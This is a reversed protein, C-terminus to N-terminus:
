CPKKIGNQRYCLRLSNVAINNEARRKLHNKAVYRVHAASRNCKYSCYAKNSKFLFAVGCNGCRKILKSKELRQSISDNLFSIFSEFPNEHSQLKILGNLRRLDKKKFTGKVLWDNVARSLLNIRKWYDDYGVLRVPEYKDIMEWAVKRFFHHFAGDYARDPQPKELRRDSLSALVLVVNEVSTLDYDGPGNRHASSLGCFLGALFFPRGEDKTKEIYEKNIAVIPDRLLPPQASREPYALRFEDQTCPVRCKKWFDKKGAYIKVFFLVHEQGQPYQQKDVFLPSWVDLMEGILYYAGVRGDFYIPNDLFPQRILGKTM